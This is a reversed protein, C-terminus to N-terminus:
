TSGNQVAGPALAPTQAFTTSAILAVLVAALHLTRTMTM